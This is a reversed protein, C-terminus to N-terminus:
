EPKIPSSNFEKKEGLETQNTRSLLQHTIEEQGQKSGRAKWWIVEGRHLQPPPTVSRNQHAGPM